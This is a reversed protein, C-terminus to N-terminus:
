KEGDGPATMLPALKFPLVRLGRGTMAEAVADRRSPTCWVIFCGGGGAGCVKPHGGARKAAAFAKKLAPTIIGKALKERHASEADIHRGVKDWNGNSLTRLLATSNKAIASFASVTARDKEVAKKLMSWNPTGSIRSEGSYVLVIRRELEAAPLDVNEYVQGERLNLVANVGGVLAAVYDQVGTPIGLHRAEINKATELTLEKEEEMGRIATLTRLFAILLASSGGLGAGAPSMTEAEFEWGDAPMFDLARHFLTKKEEPTNPSYLIAKGLQRSRIVAGGKRGTKRATVTAYLDIAANISVSPAFMVSLPWIDLTGGALDIRTPAKVTIM